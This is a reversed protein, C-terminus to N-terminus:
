NKSIRFDYLKLQISTFGNYTNLAPVFAVDLLTECKQNRIMEQAKEPGFKKTLMNTFKEVKNFGLADIRINNETNLILKLTNKNSGMIYFREVNISKDGFIPSPNGKGFPELAEIDNILDISVESISVRSDITLKPILDRETLPSNENLKRRLENINEKKITLGAAMQHGGFKELLDKLKSLEEFMNYKEISRGSGKACLEDKSDTLIIAPRNYKEKVRGAIIGAISEHISPDYVLIVKDKHFNCNEIIRSVNEFGKETLGQRKENLERLQFAIVDAEAPDRCLLLKLSLDAKELRGTANICPGIIFGVHYSKIKRDEIGVTKILAKLGINKTNNLMELGIKAIVRNEYLIDVVDCITAIAAYEIFQNAEERPIGMKEYLVAAFKYAVSAGCLLKFPYPCDEQKPDIIADAEPLVITREGQDNELFPIEHHDTIVVSMGLEKAYKIEDVAAIGNDCTLLVQCGEDHLIKLREVNIGYGEWERDPIYYTVNAGCKRLATFLIYTSIVGDADYDGYIVIKKHSEIAEKI